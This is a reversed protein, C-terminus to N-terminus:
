KAAASAQRVSELVKEPTSSGSVLAEGGALWADAVEPVTVTDLWVALYSAKNVLEVGESVAKGSGEETVAGVVTSPQAYPAASLKRANERGTAFKMFDVALAVRPSRANILYGEPAGEIAGPDGGAGQPVPLPFIGFNEPTLEREDTVNAFELIEQYYMAAKGNLFKEQASSYLVGNTGDRTDTCEDVLTKFQGLATVYGPHDLKATGPKFDANLVDAPVHYAFLQQLYHLAPWGDKNGFTVPEYGAKRLPACAALLEEFSAPVGIGARDFAAKNYGMFKGNNYLPIGYYKGDYAFASLAAQGFTGGWPTGPGIVKTLDAARGGRVFNEAWNGTWTFYIDPLADSATLTKTKDKISQDTEQILEVKVGPHMRQYEAAIGEFYSSLPDGAFKTLISLTGSFEPTAAVDAAPAKAAPEGACGALTLVSTGVIAAFTTLARPRM